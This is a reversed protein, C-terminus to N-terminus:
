RKMGTTQYPWERSCNADSPAASRGVIQGSHGEVNDEGCFRDFVEPPDFRM